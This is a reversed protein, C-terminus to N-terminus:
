NAEMIKIQDATYDTESLVIDTIKAVDETQLGDEAASVVVSISNDGMFAVCDAYGKAVVLSEIQSELATYGALTQIARNADDITEQQANEQESAERLLSLASDRSQQRSLRATDFYSSVATASEQADVVEGGVLTADGLVHTSEGDESTSTEVTEDTVNGAYRWNLYVAACVFLLVTAVVASRKWQKRM